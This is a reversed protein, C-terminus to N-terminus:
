RSWGGMDDLLSEAVLVEGGVGEGEGRVGVLVGVGEASLESGPFEDGEDGVSGNEGAGAAHVSRGRSSARGGEWRGRGGRSVEKVRGWTPSTVPM